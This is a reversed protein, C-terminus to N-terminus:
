EVSWSRSFQLLDLEAVDGDLTMITMKQSGEFSASTDPELEAASLSVLQLGLQGRCVTGVPQGFYHEAATRMGPLNNIAESLRTSGSLEAETQEEEEASGGAPVVRRMYGVRYRASGAPVNSLDRKDEAAVASGITCCVPM